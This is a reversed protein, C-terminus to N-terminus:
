DARLVDAPNTRSARRAPGYTSWTAALVFLGAIAAMLPASGSAVGGAITELTSLLVPLAALGLAIGALTVILAEGAVSRMVDMPGAGIAQRIALERRRAVVAYSVRSYLGALALVLVSVGFITVIRTRLRPLAMWEWRIEDVPKAVGIAQAPDIRVVEERVAQIAAAATGSPDLLLTMFPWPVQRCALYLVSEARPDLSLPQRADDVVGVITLPTPLGVLTIRHGIPEENPWYRRALARSIAAVHPAGAGDRDDIARGRVVGLGLM